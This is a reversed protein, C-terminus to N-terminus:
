AVRFRTKVPREARKRQLSEVKHVGTQASHQLALAAQPERPKPSHRPALFRQKRRAYPNPREAYLGDLTRQMTTVIDAYLADVLQPNGADEAAFADWAMPHGVEITIRSPLPFYPIGSPLVGFPFSLRFPFVKTRTFHTLGTWRALKEGRTLTVVTENSGHCVVPIIPVGQELALRIFGKRGDFDVKNSEGYPRQSEYDGGPYVMVPEGRSLARAAKGPSAPICGLRSLVEGLKPVSFLVDHALPRLPKDMGWHRLYAGIFILVDPTYAGGSHNGVLLYPGHAPLRSLGRVEPDFYAGVREIFETARQRFAADPRKAEFSDVRRQVRARLAESAGRSRDEIQEIWESLSM